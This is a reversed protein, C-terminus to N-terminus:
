IQSFWFHWALFIDHVLPCRLSASNDYGFRRPRTSSVRPPMADWDVWSEQETLQSMFGPQQRHPVHKSIHCIEVTHGPFDEGKLLRNEGSLKGCLGERQRLDRWMFFECFVMNLAVVAPSSPSRLTPSYRGSDRLRSSPVHAFCATPCLQPASLVSAIPVRM